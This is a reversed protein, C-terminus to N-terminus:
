LQAELVAVLAPEDATPDSEALLKTAARRGGV